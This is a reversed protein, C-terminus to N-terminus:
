LPLQIQQDGEARSLAPCLQGYRESACGFGQAPPSIAISAALRSGDRMLMDLRQLDQQAFCQRFAVACGVHALKQEIVIASETRHKASLVDFGMRKRCQDILFAAGPCTPEVKRWVDTKNFSRPPSGIDWCYLQPLGEAKFKGAVMGTVSQHELVHMLCPANDRDAIRCRDSGNALPLIEHRRAISSASGAIQDFFAIDTKVAEHRQDRWFRVRSFQRSGRLM